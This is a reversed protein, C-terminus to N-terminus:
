YEDYGTYANLKSQDFLSLLDLYERAAFGTFGMGLSCRYDYSM